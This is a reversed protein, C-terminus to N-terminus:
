AAADLGRVTDYRACDAIARADDRYTRANRAVGPADAILRTEERGLGSVMESDAGSRLVIAADAPVPVPASATDAPAAVLAQKLMVLYYYLAVASLAIAAIAPWGVPGGLGGLRLVAAFVAFKGFFGSYLNRWGLQSIQDPLGLTAPIPSIALIKVGKHIM